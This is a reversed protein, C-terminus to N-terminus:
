LVPNKKTSQTKDFYYEVDHANSWLGYDVSSAKGVAELNYVGQFRPPIDSIERQSPLVIPAYLTSSDRSVEAPVFLSVDRCLQGMPDPTFTWRQKINKKAYDLYAANMKIQFSDFPTIEWYENKWPIRILALHKNKTRKALAKVKVNPKNGVGGTRVKGELSAAVQIQIGRLPTHGYKGPKTNHLGISFYLEFCDNKYIAPNESVPTKDIADFFIYLAEKDCAMKILPANEQSDNELKLSKPAVNSWFTNSLEFPVKEFYKIQPLSSRANKNRGSVNVLIQSVLGKSAATAADIKELDYLNMRKLLVTGTAKWSAIGIRIISTKEPIEYHIEANQFDDTNNKM